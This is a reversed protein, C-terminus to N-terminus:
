AVRHELRFDETSAPVGFHAGRVSEINALTRLGKLLRALDDKADPNKLWFFVHHVLKPYVNVAASAGANTAALTAAAVLFTRRSHSM